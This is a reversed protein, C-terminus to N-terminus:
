DFGINITQISFQIFFNVLIALTVSFVYVLPITMKKNLLNDFANIIYTSIVNGILFYTLLFLNSAVIIDLYNATVVYVTDLYFKIVNSQLFFTTLSFIAFLKEYLFNSLVTEQQKYLNSEKVGNYSIFFLTYFCLLPISFLHSSFYSRLNFNEQYLNVTASLFTFFLQFFLYIIGIFAFTQHSIRINKYTMFVVFVLVLFIIALYEIIESYMGSEIYLLSVNTMFFLIALTISNLLDSISIKKIHNVNDVIFNKFIKYM